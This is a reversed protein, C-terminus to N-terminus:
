AFGGVALRATCQREVRYFAAFAASEVGRSIRSMLNENDPSELDGPGAGHIGM